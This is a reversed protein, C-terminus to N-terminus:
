NNSKKNDNNDSKWRYYNRKRVYFKWHEPNPYCDRIEVLDLEVMKKLDRAAKQFCVNTAEAVEDITFWKIPNNELLVKINYISM